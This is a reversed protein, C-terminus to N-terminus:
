VNLCTALYPHLRLMMEDHYRSCHADVGHNLEWETKGTRRRRACDPSEHLRGDKEREKKERRRGESARRWVLGLHKHPLSSRAQPDSALRRCRTAQHRLLWIPQLGSATLGLPQGKRHTVLFLQQPEEGPEHPITGVQYDAAIKFSKISYLLTM